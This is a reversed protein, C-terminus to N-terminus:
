ATEATTEVRATSCGGDMLESTRSLRRGCTGIFGSGPESGRMVHRECEPCLEEELSLSSLRLTSAAVPSGVARIARELWTRPLGAMDAQVESIPLTVTFTETESM